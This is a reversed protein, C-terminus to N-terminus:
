KRPNTASNQQLYIVNVVVSNDKVVPEKYM